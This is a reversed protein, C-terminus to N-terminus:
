SEGPWAYVSVPAATDDEPGGFTYCPGQGVLQLDECPVPLQLYTGRYLDGWGRGEFYWPVGFLGTYHTELRKEWKLMEMLGGCSGDPLRPVCDANTGAGDTAALGAATRSVNILSAAGAADGQRLLGEAKLLRMEAAKIEPWHFDVWHTYREADIHWYYSWRWTGRDPRKWMNRIGWARERGGIQGELGDPIVYLSGPNAEQEAVTSGQAFRTDPTVILIPDEVGDGDADPNPLRDNLPTDLWRRYSGSQDAMGLIFYSEEAWGPYTGYDVFDAYWGKYPDMDMVWDETIGAEVDAMVADWDVAAREAPTRAVAARFRAAFSHALRALQDATVEVSMWSAPITWGMGEALDAAEDLFALATDMVATYDELEAQDLVTNEDRIFARDYLLALSGHGLGQVFRGFAMLRAYESNGLDLALDPNTELAQLGEALGALSSYLTEWPYAVVYYYVSGMDNELPMRPIASFYGMAACCSWSSHQFSAASLGMAPGSFAYEADHWTEFSATVLATALEASGFAADRGPENPNTVDLDSCGATLVLALGLTVHVIPTTGPTPRFRM